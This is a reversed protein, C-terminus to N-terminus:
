ICMYMYTYLCMRILLKMGGDLPKYVLKYYQMFQGIEPFYARNGLAFLSVELVDANLILFPVTVTFTKHDLSYHITTSRYQLFVAQHKPM